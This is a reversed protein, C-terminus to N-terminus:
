AARNKTIQDRQQKLRAIEHFEESDPVAKDKLEDIKKDIAAIAEEVSKESRMGSGEYGIENRM